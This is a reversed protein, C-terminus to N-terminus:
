AAMAMAAEPAKALAARLAATAATRSQPGFIASGVVFTDAGADAVRRINGARIGGEVALRVERGSRAQEADVIRRVKELRRLSGEIFTQGGYGPHVSMVIVHDVQGIVWELVDLSAAPEFALGAKCGSARILRLTREVDTAANAHFSVLDAGAEVFREVLADLPAVGLHVELPAATGDARRLHRKLAQAEGHGLALRTLEDVEMVDFHLGDAGAAVAARAEEALRARDACLISPVIRHKM